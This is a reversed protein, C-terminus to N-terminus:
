VTDNQQQYYHSQGQCYTLRTIANEINAPTIGTMQNTQILYPCISPDGMFTINRSVYENLVIIMNQVLAAKNACVFSSFMQNKALKMDLSKVNGGILSWIADAQHYIMNQGNIVQGYEYGFRLCNTSFISSSLKSIAHKTCCRISSILDERGCPRWVDVLREVLVDLDESKPICVPM